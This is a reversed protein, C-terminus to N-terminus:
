PRETSRSCVPSSIYIAFIVLNLALQCPLCVVSYIRPLHVLSIELDLYRFALWHRTRVPPFCQSSVIIPNTGGRFYSGMVLVTNGCFGVGSGLACFRLPTVKGLRALTAYDQNTAIPHKPSQPKRCMKPLSVTRHLIQRSWLSGEGRSRKGTRTLTHPRNISMPSDFSLKQLTPLLRFLVVDCTLRITIRSISSIM